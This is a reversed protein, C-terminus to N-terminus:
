VEQSNEQIWETVAEILLRKEAIGVMVDEIETNSVKFAYGNIAMFRAASVFATRKNGDVFVHYNVLAECLVAAKSYIGTHLEKADFTAKPREIISALLKVERVGHSGGTKDIIRAHIVLIEEATLYEM